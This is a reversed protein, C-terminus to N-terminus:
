LAGEIATDQAASQGLRVAPVAPMVPAPSEAGPGPAASPPLVASRGPPREPQRDPDDVLLAIMRAGPQAARRGRSPSGSDVLARRAAAGVGDDPGGQRPEAASGALRALNAQRVKKPLTAPAGGELIASLETHEVQSATPARHWAIVPLGGRIAAKLDRLGPEHRAEPPATLIMATAAEDAAIVVDLRATAGRGNGGTLAVCERAGNRRMSEWRDRWVRHLGPQRLRDLSRIVVAYHVLLGSPGLATNRLWTEVPVNILELPLIMELVIGMAHASLRTEANALEAGTAEPLKARTVGRRRQLHYRADEPGQHWCTMLFGGPSVPDREFQVAVYFDARADEARERDSPRARRELARTLQPALGAQHAFGRLWTEVRQWTAPHLLYTCDVLFLLWPPLARPPPHRAAAHALVHWATRCHDPPHPGLGARQFAGGTDIVRLKGLEAKLQNWVTPDPATAAVLAAEWEDLLRRLTTATQSGPRLFCVTEVLTSLGDELIAVGEVFAIVWDRAVEHDPVYVTRGALRSFRGLLLKRAAASRLDDAGDLCKIVEDVITARVADRWRTMEDVITTRVADPWPRSSDLETM